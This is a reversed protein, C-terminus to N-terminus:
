EEGVHDHRAHRAFLKGVGDLLLPGVDFDQERGAVGAVRDDVIADDLRAHLEDALGERQRLQGLPDAVDDARLRGAARSGDWVHAAM